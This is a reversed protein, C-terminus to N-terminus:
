EGNKEVAGADKVRKGDKARNDIVDEEAEDITILAVLSVLLRAIGLFVLELILLQHLVLALLVAEPRARTLDLVLPGPNHKSRPSTTDDELPANM